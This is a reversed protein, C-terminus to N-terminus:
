PVREQVWAILETTSIGETYPVYRMIGMEAPIRYFDSYLNDDGHVVLDINHTQIFERTVLLPVDALVQDVIKLARVIECRQEMGLFPKRKYSACVEDSHVGVVLFDGLSRARQLLRLHGFHFMDFVGDVFIRM